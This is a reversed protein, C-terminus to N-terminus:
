FYFVWIHLLLQRERTSGAHLVLGLTVSFAASVQVTRAGRIISSFPSLPIRLQLLGARSMAVIRLPKRQIGSPMSLKIAPVNDLVPLGLIQSLLHKHFSLFTSINELLRSSLHLPIPKQKCKLLGACLDSEARPPHSPMQLHFDGPSFILRFILGFKKKTQKTFLCHSDHITLVQFFGRMRITM